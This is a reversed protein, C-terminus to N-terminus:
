DPRRVSAARTPAPRLARDHWTGTPSTRVPEYSEVSGRRKGPVLLCSGPLCWSIHFLIRVATAGDTTTTRAAYPMAKAAVPLGFGILRSGCWLSVTFVGSGVSGGAALWGGSGPSVGAAACDGSGDP